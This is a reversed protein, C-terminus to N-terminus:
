KKKGMKYRGGRVLVDKGADIDAMEKLLGRQTMDSDHYMNWLPVRYKKVKAVLLNEESESAPSEKGRDVISMRSAEPHLSVSFFDVKSNHKFFKVRPGHGPWKDGPQLVHMTLAVGFHHDEFDVNAMEFIPEVPQGGNPDEFYNYEEM